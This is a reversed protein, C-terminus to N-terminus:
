NPLDRLKRFIVNVPGFGTDVTVYEGTELNRTPISAKIEFKFARPQPPTGTVLTAGPPVTLTVQLDIADPNEVYHGDYIAGAADAGAIMGKQFVVVGMGWDAHGRFTVHYIGEIM